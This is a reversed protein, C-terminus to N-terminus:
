KRDGRQPSHSQVEITDNDACLADMARAWEDIDISQDSDESLAIDIELRTGEVWDSPLPELPVIMGQRLTAKLM